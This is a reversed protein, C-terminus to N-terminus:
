RVAIMVISSHELVIGMRIGNMAIKGVGLVIKSMDLKEMQM